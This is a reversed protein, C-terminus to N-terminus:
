RRPTARTRYNNHARLMAGIIGGDSRLVIGSVNERLCRPRFELAYINKDRMLRPTQRTKEVLIKLTPADAAACSQRRFRECRM